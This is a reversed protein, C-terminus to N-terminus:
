WYGRYFILLVGNSGDRLQALTVPRGNTDRLAFEPAKQGVAPANPSSPLARSFITTLYTFAGIVIIGLVVAISAVIKRQARRWGTVLLFAAIAMLAYPVWPVDRTIVFQSFVMYYSLFAVVALVLGGWLRWNFRKM